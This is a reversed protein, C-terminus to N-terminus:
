KNDNTTRQSSGREMKSEMKSKMKSNFKSDPIQFKFNNIGAADKM